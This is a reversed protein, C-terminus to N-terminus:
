TEILGILGDQRKFIVNIADNQSHKFVFFSRNKLVKLRELAEEVTFPEVEIQEPHIWAPLGGPHVFSLAEEPAGEGIKEESHKKQDIVRKRKKEMQKEIKDAAGEFATRLDAGTVSSRFELRAAKLLIDAEHVHKEKSLTVEISSIRDFFKNFREIRKDIYDRIDDSVEIHRATIRLPM